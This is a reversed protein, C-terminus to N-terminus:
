LGLFEADEKEEKQRYYTNVYRLACFRKDAKIQYVTGGHYINMKNRGLVTVAPIEAFPLTLIGGNYSLTFRDDYVSLTAEEALLTRKEFVATTYLGVTDTFLPTERYPSLDAALMARSQAEYWDAVFRFPAECGVGSLATDEGYHVSLGCTRCTFTNGESEMRASFGCTPCWYIARELYEARRKHRFTATDRAEDLYLGDRITAFLEDDSMSLYEEPEIVRSVGATMRGRRAKDSWRPFVGYGGEIRFLFIPLRLARCLAAVTPKIYGTRGSYTRNGEPAMVISGGERAVRLCNLVARADNASKKIAIPACSWQLFRSLRGNCFLDESTVYYVNRGLAVSVFFQDFATVHNLLVICQRKDRYRRIRIHYVFFSYVRVLIRLVFQVAAHRPRIWKTRKTKSDKKM